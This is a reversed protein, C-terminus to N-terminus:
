HGPHTQLLEGLRQRLRHYTFPKELFAAVHQGEFKRATESKSFGSMVVTLANPHHAAIRRLAEAGDLRPMMVDLVVLQLEGPELTSAKEIGELGDAAQQVRFGVRELMRSVLNRVMEEDDVVLATGQAVVEVREEENSRAKEKGDALAPLLLRFSTGKGPRSRVFINGDHGRVIGLVAALGLGRGTFKTSFFPEFIRELKDPSMGEGDDIVEFMAYQGPPLEQPIVGGAKPTVLAVHGCRVQVTGEGPLIAEWANTVLNLLVQRLQAQDGNILPTHSGLDLEIAVKKPATHQWLHVSDEILSRLSLRELKVSRQGSYALLQKCLRAAQDAAADIQALQEMTNTDAGHDESLLSTAGVIGMLLNNFDHAIGGALVGLSELRQTELLKEKFKAKNALERELEQRTLEAETVDICTGIYGVFEGHADYRPTGRDRIWRYAGDHRRLRYIVEFVERKALAERYVREVEVRDEHHLSSPWRDGQEQEQARGTLELWASNFWGCSGNPHSVWMPMPALEMLRRLGALGDAPDLVKELVPEPQAACGFGKRAGVDVCAGISAEGAADTALQHLDESTDM